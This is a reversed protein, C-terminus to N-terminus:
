SGSPARIVGDRETPFVEQEYDERSLTCDVLRRFSSIPLKCQRAMLGLLSIDIDRSSGHSIKTSATTKAGGLTRYTYYIHDRGKDEDFGKGKLGKAIDRKKM